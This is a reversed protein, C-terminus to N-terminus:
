FNYGLSIGAMLGLQNGSGFKEKGSVIFYKISFDSCLTLRKALKVKVNLGIGTSFLAHGEEEGERQEGLDAGLVNWYPSITINNKMPFNYHINEFFILILDHSDHDSTIASILLLALGLPPLHIYGLNNSGRGYLLSGSLGFRNYFYDHGSVGYYNINWSGPLDRYQYSVYLILHEEFPDKSEKKFQAFLNNFTFLLFIAIGLYIGIKNM